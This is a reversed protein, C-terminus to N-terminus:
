GDGAFRYWGIGPHGGDKGTGRYLRVVAFSWACSRRGAGAGGSLGRTWGGFEVVTRTPVGGKVWGVDVCAM